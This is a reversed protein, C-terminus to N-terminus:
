AHVETALEDLVRTAAQAGAAGGGAAVVADFIRQYAACRCINGALGERVQDRTPQPLEDLLARARVVFGPICYGCQCADHQAFAQQVPDLQEGKALGEVTTVQRGVADIALTLCSNVARGDLLVTCAGCSGRDCVEKAGTLGAQERLAELLTTAPPVTMKLAEGNVMLTIAAGAAAYRTLGARPPPGDAPTPEQAAAKDLLPAAVTAAGIAGGLGKLFGRRSVDRRATKEPDVM